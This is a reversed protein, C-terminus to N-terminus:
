VDGKVERMVRLFKAAVVINFLVFVLQFISEGWKFNPLIIDGGVRFFFALVGVLLCIGLVMMADKLVGGYYKYARIVLTLAILFLFPAIWKLLPNLFSTKYNFLEFEM